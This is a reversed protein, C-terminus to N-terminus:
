LFTQGGRGQACTRCAGSYAHTQQRAAPYHIGGLDTEYVENGQHELYERLGIEESTMSKAKVILKGKGTLDGIIKKADDATQAIYAKGKNAEVSECAQQALKRMNSISHEKIQRVEEALKVTHPFKSLAEDINNRFSKVARSLAAAIKEDHAADMIEKKYESFESM